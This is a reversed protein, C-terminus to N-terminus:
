YTCLRAHLDKDIKAVDLHKVILRAYEKFGQEDNYADLLRNFNWVVTKTLAEKEEYSDLSELLVLVYVGAELAYKPVGDRVKIGKERRYLMATTHAIFEDMLYLPRDEWYKVGNSYTSDYMFVRLEKPVKKLVVSLKVDPESFAVFNNSLLYFANGKPLKARLIGNIGHTCEHVTSIDLSEQDVYNLGYDRATVNYHHNEPLHSQVDAMIDSGPYPRVRDYTSSLGTFLFALLYIIKM